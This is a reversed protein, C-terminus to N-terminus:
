VLLKDILDLYAKTQTESTFNSLAYDRAADSMQRRLSDTDILQKLKEVFADSNGHPILFGSQHDVFTEAVGGTDYAVIPLGAMQAEVLFNPLSESDSAHIAIHSKEYLTNPDPLLGLFSTKDALGIRQAEAKCRELEPGDGALTLHWPRKTDLRSCLRLLNIQKKEQRFLSASVLHVTEHSLSSPHLNLSSATQTEKEMETRSASSSSSLSSSSSSPSSSERICGNYIVTTSEPRYLGYANEIRRVAEHSNAVVHDCYQLARRYLAPVPKGTRFTSIIKYTRSRTALRGAHCNAMRGMAIVIQPDLSEITKHLKPAFWDTKLLGQNLFHISTSTAKAKEDLVGGKRFVILHSELGSKALQDALHITQNETGGNRLHDQLFVVRM